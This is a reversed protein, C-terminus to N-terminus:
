TFSLYKNSTISNEIEYSLANPPTQLIVFDSMLHLLMPKLELITLDEKCSSIVKLVGTEEMLTELLGTNLIKKPMM